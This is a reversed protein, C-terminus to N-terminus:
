GRGKGTRRALSVIVTALEAMEMPKSVHADFGYSLARLRDEARVHATLAIAPTQGGEENPLVRVKAILSYGDEYAMEIDSILVDPRWRKLTELGEAASGAAQVEAGWDSLIIKLLESADAEDDVILIRLGVLAPPRGTTVPTAAPAAAESAGTLYHALDKSITIPLKVTFTAGYGEGASQAEVTGGHLEVLQRTIALGLGLGGHVRTYSSDAQRFRDFVYPLFESSIGKGTDSVTIETHSNIRELRIQVRGGKPTFKVANSLLNWVVQQLRSPDGSVPGAKPDLVVQLRIGKADAAPRIADVAGQIVLPVEVPQVDLRMRGTIIRSIDLLDEILQTQARANREITEIAQAATNNDVSRRRLIAAWGVIANLPTRLEHSVTALFEDKMRSAEEAQKRAAQERLLLEASLNHAQEAERRAAQERELLEEREEEARKRETINRAITSAGTIGGAANKIVSITLSVQIIQGDKRVRETEYHEIPQGRRLTEMIKPFDDIRNPPMLLTVSRGKVEEASYGYLREAGKNWSVITGDMTKSIIADDSSEVISALLSRTEEVRKNETIDRTFCRTHVFRGKDWRVNSTILVHLISGDKRRLRAEHDRLTEKNSLKCLIDNIVDEDAHFEAIHRGIYEDRTYGLLDLEAQNAWLIKGDSGVWHLGLAANEVFDIYDSEVRNREEEARKRETIDRFVLIVGIIRGGRARIPAGSDDIPIENGDRAILVTHNALGVVNGEKLVRTVPSEVPERTTENIIKFVDGLPKGAADAMTWGTIAEATPNIFNISGDIGTAIVADGISSLTVSMLESQQQLRNQASRRSSVFLVLSVFLILRNLVLFAFKLSLSQPFTFYEITIEYVVLVLLGPGRGGYWASAILVIILLPTPDLTLSFFRKIAFAILLIVTFALVGLGYRLAATRIKRAM